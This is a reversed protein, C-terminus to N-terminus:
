GTSWSRPKIMGAIKCTQQVYGYPFLKFLHERTLGRAKLHATMDRVSPPVGHEAHWARVFAIISWHEDTLQLGEERALREALDESWDDPDLLYGEDGLPAQHSPSTQFAPTHDTM